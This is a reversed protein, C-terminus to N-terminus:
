WFDGRKGRLGRISGLDAGWHIRRGLHFLLNRANSREVGLWVGGMVVELATLANNAEVIRAVKITPDPFAWFRRRLPPKSVFV